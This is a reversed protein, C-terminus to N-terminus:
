DAPHAALWADVMASVDAKRPAIQRFLEQARRAAAVARAREGRQEYAKALMFASSAPLWPDVEARERIELARALM